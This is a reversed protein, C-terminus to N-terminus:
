LEDKEQKKEEAEEEVKVDEEVKKLDEKVAADDSVDVKFTGHEAIFKYFSAESRDGDYDVVENTKAKILKITPFGSVTFGASPPIDNATADMKAIRIQGAHEAYKKGVEDYIPVLKKCHGCWPAYFEILVDREQDMVLKDFEEAVVVKVPEDNKEPPPESKISPKIGGAVYGGVFERITEANITKTQDFPFKTQAQPEQIAFAPWDQKLNLNEAHGSYKAADIWVFNVKGKFDKAVSKLEEPLTKRTDDDALFLYALPLGSEMYKMFNEPGVEDMLPMKNENLFAKLSDADMADSYVTKREDFQRYLVIAPPTVEHAKHSAEDLAQGFVIEENMENAVGHLVEREPDSESKFYGLVVLRDSEAFKDLEEHKVDSMPPMTRKRLYSTIGDAKRPGEYDRGQGDKFVKITPYGNVDHEQCLDKEITCDVKGLRITTDQLSTAAEEYEPALAKCHGCWPAYFEVMLLPNEKLSHQFNEGTLVIVHSEPPSDDDARTFAALLATLITRTSM